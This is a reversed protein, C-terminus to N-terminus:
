RPVFHVAISSNQYDGKAIRVFRIRDGLFGSLSTNPELDDVVRVPLGGCSDVAAIKRGSEREFKFHAIQVASRGGDISTELILSFDEGGEGYTFDVLISLTRVARFLEPPRNKFKIETLWPSQHRGEAIVDEFADDM